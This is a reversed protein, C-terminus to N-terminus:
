VVGKQKMPCIFDVRVGGVAKMMGGEEYLASFCVSETDVEHSFWRFNFGQWVGFIIGAQDRSALVGCLM